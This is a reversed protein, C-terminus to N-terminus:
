KRLAGKRVLQDLYRMAEDPRVQPFADAVAACVAQADRGDAVGWLLLGEVSIALQRFENRFLRVADLTRIPLWFLPRHVEDRATSWADWRGSAPQDWGAYQAATLLAQTLRIRDGVIDAGSRSGTTFLLVGVPGLLDPATRALQKMMWKPGIYLDGAGALYCKAAQVLLSHSILLASDMDNDIFAGECDVMDNACRMVWQGMVLRRLNDMKDSMLTRAEDYEASALVPESHLLRIVNDYAGPKFHVSTTNKTTFDYTTMRSAAALMAGPKRREIDVRVGDVDRQEPETGCAPQEHSVVFLDVDSTTSGLGATLSGAIYVAQVGPEAAIGAGAKRAADLKRDRMAEDIVVEEASV